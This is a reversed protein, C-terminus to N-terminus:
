RPLFDIFVLRFGIYTRDIIKIVKPKTSELQEGLGVAEGLARAVFAGALTGGVSVAAGLKNCGAVAFAVVAEIRKGNSV